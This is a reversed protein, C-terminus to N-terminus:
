PNVMKIAFVNQQLTTCLKAKALYIFLFWLEKSKHPSFLEKPNVFVVWRILTFTYILDEWLSRQHLAFLKFSYLQTIPVEAAQGIERMSAPVRAHAYFELHPHVMASLLPMCIQSCYKISTRIVFALMM